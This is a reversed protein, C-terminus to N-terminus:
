IFPGISSTFLAYTFLVRFIDQFLSKGPPLLYHKSECIVRLICARPDINKSCPLYIHFNEASHNLDFYFIHVCLMAFSELQEYLDRREKGHRRRRSAAQRDVNRKIRRQDYALRNARRRTSESIPQPPHWAAEDGDNISNWLYGENM